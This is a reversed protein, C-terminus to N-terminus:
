QSQSNAKQLLYDPSKYFYLQVNQGISIFVNAILRDGTQFTKLYYLQLTSFDIYIQLAM